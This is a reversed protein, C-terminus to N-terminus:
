VDTARFAMCTPWSEPCDDVTMWLRESTEQCELYCVYFSFCVHCHRDNLLWKNSLKELYQIRLGDVTGYVTLNIWDRNDLMRVPPAM